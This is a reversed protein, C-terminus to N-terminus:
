PASFAEVEVEDDSEFEFPRDNPIRAEEVALVVRRVDVPADHRNEGIEGM